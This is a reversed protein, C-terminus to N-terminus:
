KERKEKKFKKYYPCYRVSVRFSQKCDADCDLCKDEYALEGAEDIFFEMEKKERETM